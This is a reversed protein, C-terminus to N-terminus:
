GKFNQMAELSMPASSRSEAVAVNPQHVQKKQLIDGMISYAMELGRVISGNSLKTQLDWMIRIAKIVLGLEIKSTLEIRSSLAQGSYSLTNGSHLVIIDRLTEITRDIIEEPNTYRLVSELKSIASGSGDLTSRILAPGYDVEGHLKNYDELTSVDAAAIQELQMCAERYSGESRQAIMNLLDVDMSIGELESIRKLYILIDEISALKLSFRTHRHRITKPIRHLETTILIFTVNKPPFELLNLLAAFGEPSIAHAEDIIVFRHGPIAYNVDKKLKRIADVNGNSAADIELVAPHTGQHVDAAGESNLEAAIIRALSTKGVGSPGTLLLVQPLIGKAIMAALIVSTAKQGVVDEFKKPRYKLALNM